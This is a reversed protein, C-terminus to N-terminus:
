LKKIEAEQIKMVEEMKAVAALFLDDNTKIEEDGEVWLQNLTAESLRIPDKVVSLYSLDQRNPKRVICSKNDVTILFLDGHKEKLAAIEKESLKKM